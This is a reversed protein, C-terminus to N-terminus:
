SEVSEGCGPPRPLVMKGVGSEPPPGVGRAVQFLTPWAAARPAGLNGDAGAGDRTRARGRPEGIGIVNATCPIMWSAPECIERCNLMVFPTTTLIWYSVSRTGVVRRTKNWSESFDESVNVQLQREVPLMGGATVLAAYSATRPSEDC